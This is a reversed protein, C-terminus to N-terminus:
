GATRKLDRRAKLEDLPNVTAAVSNRRADALVRSLEKSLAAVGSSVAPASAIRSALELAHQGTVSDVKSLAELEASVADVLGSVPRSVTAPPPPPGDSTSAKARCSSGCYKKTSRQADFTDGCHACKGQM